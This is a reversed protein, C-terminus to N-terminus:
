RARGFSRGSQFMAVRSTILGYWTQRWSPLVICPLCSGGLRVWMCLKCPSTACWRWDCWTVGLSSCCERCQAAHSGVRGTRHSAVEPTRPHFLRLAPSPFGPPCWQGQSQFPMRCPSCYGELECAADSHFRLDVWHMSQCSERSCVAPQLPPPPLDFKMGTSEPTGWPDTTPGHRKRRYMLSRGMSMSDFIRSNASSVTHLLVMLCLSSWLFSCFSRSERMVHSFCHDM